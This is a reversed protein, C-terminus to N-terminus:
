LPIEVEYRSGISILGGTAIVCRSYGSHQGLKIDVGSIKLYRPLAQNFAVKPEFFDIGTVVHWCTHLHLSDDTKLIFGSANRLPKKNKDLTTLKLTRDSLSWEDRRRLKLESLFQEPFITRM